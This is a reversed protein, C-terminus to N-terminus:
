GFHRGRTHERASPNARARTNQQRTRHLRTVTDAAHFAAKPTAPPMIPQHLSRLPPLKSAAALQRAIEEASPRPIRPGSSPDTNMINDRAAV